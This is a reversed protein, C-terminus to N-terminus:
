FHPYTQAFVAKRMLLVKLGNEPQEELRRQGM